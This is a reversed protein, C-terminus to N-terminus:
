ATAPAPPPLPSCVNPPVAVHSPDVGVDAAPPPGPIETGEHVGVPKSYPPSGPLAVAAPARPQPETEGYKPLAPVPGYASGAVM